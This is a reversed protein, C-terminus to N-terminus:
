QNPSIRGSNQTFVQSREISKLKAIRRVNSNFLYPLLNTSGLLLPPEEKLQRTDIPALIKPHKLALNVRKPVSIHRITQTTRPQEEVPMLELKSDKM